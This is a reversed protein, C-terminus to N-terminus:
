KGKKKMIKKEQKDIAMDLKSGEKLKLKKDINRDLKSNEVKDPKKSSYTKKKM